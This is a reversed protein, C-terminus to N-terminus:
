SEMLEKIKNIANNVTDINPEMVYVQRKKSTYTYNYSNYGNLSIKEIEWDPMHFLQFKVLDYIRNSDINTQFTGNLSDLIDLYNTVLVRSSTMKSIIGEIVRLQNEGRVRDGEKFNYRARSFALAKEGNM